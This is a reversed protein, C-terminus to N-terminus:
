RRSDAGHQDEPADAHLGDLVRQLGPRRTIQEFRDERLTDLSVNVRSLGAKRLDAAMDALLIGNTTLTIEVESSIGAMDRIFGVLGKRVLPEGGTVRIKHVGCRVAISVARLLEEYSLVDKHKIPDIGEAPMCYRCRLNCRDTVSLRLYEITRGFNDHLGANSKKVAV